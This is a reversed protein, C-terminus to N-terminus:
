HAPVNWRKAFIQGEFATGHCTSCSHEAGDKRAIKAVFNEKMWAGLAHPDRRDLFRPRGAHCSDCYLPRADGSAALGRVYDNWMHTAIKKRPTSARFDKTDHCYSCSVGLSKTFTKMLKRLADPDVKELPPLSAADLSLERLAGGQESALTLAPGAPHSSADAGPQGAPTTRGEPKTTTTAPSASPGPQSTPAPPRAAPPGDRGCALVFSAALAFFPRRM